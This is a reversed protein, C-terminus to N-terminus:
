RTKGNQGKGNSNKGNPAKGEPAKGKQSRGAQAQGNAPRNRNKNKPRPKRKKKKEKLTTLDNEFTKFEQEAIGSSAFGRDVVGKEGKKNLMIIEKVKDLEIAFMQDGQSNAMTYWIIKKLIERKRPVARGEELELELLMDPFDNQAELYTDLEYMLCCKLKGCQGTLKQINHPLQQVKAANSSVSELNSRWSSCCLEKGCSGIGGVMAAEQRAGIQKMEVKISFERAYHKILQRFDVRGDAIYYFIAKNGDGQFEVDSIKMNLQLEEAIKRARIMVPKERLRAKAWKEIDTPTAKRYVPKDPQKRLNRRKLQMLALKGTLTVKGIDHGSTAGVAVYDDRKLALKNSNLFFEKRTNKFQVEIIPFEEASDPLEKMWDYSSLKGCGNEFNSLNDSSKNLMDRAPCSNCSM